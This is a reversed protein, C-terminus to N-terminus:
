HIWLDIIFGTLSVIIKAANIKLRNRQKNQASSGELKSSGKKKKVESLSSRLCVHYAKEADDQPDDSESIGGGALTKVIKVIEPNYFCQAMIVDSVSALVVHGAAFAPQFHYDGRFRSGYLMENLDHQNAVTKASLLHSCSPLHQIYNHDNLQVVFKGQSLRAIDKAILVANADVSVDDIDNKQWEGFVVVCTATDVGVMKLVYPDRHDGFMCYVNRFRRIVKLETSDRLREPFLLVVHRFQFTNVSRLPKLFETVGAFSRSIVLIHSELVSPVADNRADPDLIKLNAGVLLSQTVSFSSEGTEKAVHTMIRGLDKLFIENGTHAIDSCYLDNWSELIVKELKEARTLEEEKSRLIRLQDIKREKETAFEADHVQDDNENEANFQANSVLTDRLKSQRHSEDPPMNSSQNSPLTYEVKVVKRGALPDNLKSTISKRMMDNQNRLNTLVESV